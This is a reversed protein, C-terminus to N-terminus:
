DLLIKSFLESIAMNKKFLYQDAIIREALDFENLLFAFDEYSIVGEEDLLIAVQLGTMGSEIEIEVLNDFNEFRNYNLNFYDQHSTLDIESNNVLELNDESELNEQALNEESNENNVMELIGYGRTQQFYISIGSTIILIIGLIILIDILVRTWFEAKAM